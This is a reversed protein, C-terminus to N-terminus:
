PTPLAIEFQSMSLRGTVEATFGTFSFGYSLASGLVQALPKSLDSRPWSHHWLSEDDALTFRVPEANWEGDSIPLPQSNLHWRGGAGHVRFLCNAGDLRLDDGRLHVSVEASALGRDKTWANRSKRHNIGAGGHRPAHPTGM